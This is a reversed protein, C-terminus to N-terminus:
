ITFFWGAIFSVRTQDRPQSSGRSFPIAVWELIRAHLIGMSLPAQCAVTWPTAFLRVRSLSWCLWVSPSPSPSPLSSHPSPSQQRACPKMEPHHFHELSLDCHQICVRFICQLVALCTFKLSHLNYRLLATQLFSFFFLQKYLTSNIVGNMQFPGYYFFLSRVSRCLCFAKVESWCTKLPMVVDLSSSPSFKMM